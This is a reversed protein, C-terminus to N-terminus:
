VHRSHVATDYGPPPLENAGDPGSIQVPAEPLPRRASAYAENATKGSPSSRQAILRSDVSPSTVHSSVNDQTTSGDEHSVGAFPRSANNNRHSSLNSRTDLSPAIGAASVTTTEPSRPFPTYATRGADLAARWRWYFIVAAVAALVAIVGEVVLGAIAGSSIKNPSSIDNNSSPVCPTVSPSTSSSSASSNAITWLQAYDVSLYQGSTAPLNTFIIQHQGPGLNDAHYIVVGYNTPYANTANYQIGQGGDLQVSYPGNSPGSTRFLTVAEGIFTFSFSADSTSTLHGTGNNFLNLNLNSTSSTTSWGSNEYQFRPDVDPVLEPVLQDGTNGVESQWVIMDIDVYLGTTGGTNILKVTHMDQSVNASYLTQQFLNNGSGNFNPYNNSDVQITYAGHNPRNAGYIWFATANFSVTATGDAASNKQFTGLYYDIAYGDDQSSGPLWTSDYSILPSKDDIVTTLLPM